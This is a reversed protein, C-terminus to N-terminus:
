GRRRPRMIFSGIMLVFSGVILLYFGMGFSLLASGFEGTQNMAAIVFISVIATWAMNLLSFIITGAKIRTLLFIMAFILFFLSIGGLIHSALEPNDFGAIALMYKDFNIYPGTDVIGASVVPLFLSIVSVILGILATVFGGDVAIVTQPQQMGYVPQQYGGQVPQGAGALPNGCYPCIKYNDEVQKGCKSCFM